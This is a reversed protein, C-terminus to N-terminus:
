GVDLGVTVLPGALGESGGCKLEGSLQIHVRNNHRRVRTPYSCLSCRRKVAMKTTEKKRRM